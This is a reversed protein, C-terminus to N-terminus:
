FLMPQIDITFIATDSTVPFNFMAEGKADTPICTQHATDQNIVFCINEGVGPGGSKTLTTMFKITATGDPKTFVKEQAVELNFNFFNIDDIFLARRTGSEGGSHMVFSVGTVHRLLDDTLELHTSRDTPSITRRFGNEIGTTSGELALVIREYGNQESNGNIDAIAKPTTQTWVSGTFHDTTDLPTNDGGDGIILELTLFAKSQSNDGDNRVFYSISNFGSADITNSISKTEPDTSMAFTKSFGIFNRGPETGFGEDITALYAATDIGTKPHPKLQNGQGKLLTFEGLVNGFARLEGGAKLGFNFNDVYNQLVFLRKATIVPADIEQAYLQSFIGPTSLLAIMISLFSRTMKM